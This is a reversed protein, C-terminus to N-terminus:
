LRQCSRGVCKSFCAAFYSQAGMIFNAILAGDLWSDPIGGCRRAGVLAGFCSSVNGAAHDRVIEPSDSSLADLVGALLAAAKREYAVNCLQRASERIVRVLDREYRRQIHPAGPCANVLQILQGLSLLGTDTRPQARVPTARLVAEFARDFPESLVLLEARGSAAM